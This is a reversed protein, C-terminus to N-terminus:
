KQNTKLSGGGTQRNANTLTSAVALKHANEAALLTAKTADILVSNGLVLAAKHAVEASVLSLRAFEEADITEKVAASTTKDALSAMAEIRQDVIGYATRLNDIEKRLAVITDLLKQSYVSSNEETM